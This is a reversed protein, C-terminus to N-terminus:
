AVHCRVNVFPRELASPCPRAAHTSSLVQLKSFSLTRTGIRLAPDMYSSDSAWGRRGVTVVNLAQNWTVQVNAFNYWFVPDVHAHETSMCLSEVDPNVYMAM